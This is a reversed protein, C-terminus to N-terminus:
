ESEALSYVALICLLVKLQVVYQQNANLGTREYSTVNGVDVITGDIDLEYSTPSGGATPWSLSVSNPNATASMVDWQSDEVGTARWSSGDFVKLGPM